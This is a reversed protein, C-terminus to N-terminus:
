LIEAAEIPRRRGTVDRTQVLWDKDFSITSRVQAVASSALLAVLVLLTRSKTM